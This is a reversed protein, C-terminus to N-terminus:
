TQVRLLGFVHINIKVVSLIPQSTFFGQSNHQNSLFFPITGIYKNLWDQCCSSKSWRLWTTPSEWKNCWIRLNGVVVGSWRTLHRKFKCHKTRFFNAPPTPADCHVVQGGRRAPHHVTVSVVGVETSLFQQVQGLIASFREVIKMQKHLENNLGASM